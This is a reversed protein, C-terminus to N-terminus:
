KENIILPNIWDECSTLKEKKWFWPLALSCALTLLQKLSFFCSIAQFLWDCFVNTGLIVSSYMVWTQSSISPLTVEFGNCSILLISDRKKPACKLSSSKRFGCTRVHEAVMGPVWPVIVWSVLFESPIMGPFIGTRFPLKRNTLRAIWSVWVLVIKLYFQFSGGLSSIIGFFIFVKQSMNFIVLQHFM